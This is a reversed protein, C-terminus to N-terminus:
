EQVQGKKKGGRTHDLCRRRHKGTVRSPATRAPVLVPATATARLLCWVTGASASNRACVEPTTPDPCPWTRAAWMCCAVRLRLARAAARSPVALAVPTASAFHVGTVRGDDADQPARPAQLRAPVAAWSTSPPAILTRSLASTAGHLCCGDGQVEGCQAVTCYVGATVMGGWCGRHDVGKDRVRQWGKFAKGTAHSAWSETVVGGCEKKRAGVRTWM